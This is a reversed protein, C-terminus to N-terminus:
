VSYGEGTDFKDTKQIGHYEEIMELRKKLREVVKYWDEFAYQCYEYYFQEKGCNPCKRIKQSM